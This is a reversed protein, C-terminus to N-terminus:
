ICQVADGKYHEFWKLSHYYKSGPVLHRGLKWKLNHHSLRKYHTDHRNECYAQGLYRYHLLKIGSDECVCVGNMPKLGHRGLDWRIDISPDFIVPKNYWVDKIGTKIEDYIQGDTQMFGDSIMVYGEPRIIQYNERKCRQLVNVIDPHYIFEDADVSIVFDCKGRSLNKYENQHVRRFYSDDIGSITTPIITVNKHRSLEEITGDDSKDDFIFFQSVFTQYHRMFYPLIKIENRLICYLHVNM